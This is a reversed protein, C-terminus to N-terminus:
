RRPAPDSTLAEASPPSEVLSEPDIRYWRMANECFMLRREGLSFRRTMEQFGRMITRYPAYLRDVPYNSGFMCRDVGFIDITELVIDRHTRVSWAPLQPEGLGAIKVATNRAEARSRM